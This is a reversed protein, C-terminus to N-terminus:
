AQKNMKKQVRQKYIDGLNDEDDDDDEEEESNNYNDGDNQNNYPRKLGTTMQSLNRNDLSSLKPPLSPSM